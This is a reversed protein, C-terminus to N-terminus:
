EGSHGDCRLVGLYQAWPGVAERYQHALIRSIQHLHTLDHVAWAALLETLTITGLAPHRGRLKMERDGLRLGRLQELNQARLRAFEDLLAGLSKGRTEQAFGWRNLPEFTREEGSELILRVRPMWDVREVYALHAVVEQVSWTKEGENRAVWNETLDRVLAGVAGPTRALLAITDGLEQEM